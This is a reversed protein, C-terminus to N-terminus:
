GAPENCVSEKEKKVADAKAKFYDSLAKERIEVFRAEIREVEDRKFDLRCAGCQMEGDDGYLAGPPCGHNFWLLERLKKTQEFIDMM